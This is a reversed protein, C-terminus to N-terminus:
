KVSKWTKILDLVIGHVYDMCKLRTFSELWSIPIAEEQEKLLKDQAEFFQKQLYGYANQLENITDEQEKMPCWEPRGQGFEHVDNEGWGRGNVRIACMLYENCAPCDLCNTPMPMDIQIM